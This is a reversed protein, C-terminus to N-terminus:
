PTKRKACWDIMADLLRWQAFTLNQERLGVQALRQFRAASLWIALAAASSREEASLELERRREQERQKERESHRLEDESYRRRGGTVAERAAGRTGGTV